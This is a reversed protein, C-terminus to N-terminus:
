DLIQNSPKTILSIILNLFNEENFSKSFKVADNIADLSMESLLNPSTLLNKLCDYLDDTNDPDLLQAAKSGPTFMEPIGGVSASVIPLGFNLAEVFSNPAGEEASWSIFISSLALIKYLLNSSIKGLFFINNSLNLEKTLKQLRDLESGEGIIIFKYNNPLKSLVRIVADIRKHPILRATTVFILPGKFRATTPFELSPLDHFNNQVWIRPKHTLKLVNNKRFDSIVWVVQFQSVFFRQVQFLLFYFLNISYIKELEVAKDKQLYTSEFVWDGTFKLISPIRFFRCWLGMLMGNWFVSNILVLNPRIKILFYISILPGVLWRFIRTLMIPNPNWNLSIVKIKPNRYENKSYKLVFVEFGNENLLETLFRAQVAPGGIDPYFIPSYILVRHPKNLDKM